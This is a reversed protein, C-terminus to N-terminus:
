SRLLARCPLAVSKRSKAKESKREGRSGGVYHPSLPLHATEHIQDFEKAVEQIDARLDDLDVHHPEELIQLINTITSNM